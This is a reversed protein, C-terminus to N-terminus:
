YPRYRFPDPDNLYKAIKGDKVYVEITRECQRHEFDCYYKIAVSWSDKRSSESAEVSDIKCSTTEYHSANEFPDRPNASAQPKIEHRCTVTGGLRAYVQTEINEKCSCGALITFMLITILIRIM